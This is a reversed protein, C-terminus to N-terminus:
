VTKLDELIDQHTNEVWKVTEENNNAKLDKVLKLYTQEFGIEVEKLTPYKYKNKQYYQNGIFNQGLDDASYM